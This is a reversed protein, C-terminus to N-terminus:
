LSINFLKYLLLQLSIGGAAKLIITIKYYFMHSTVMFLQIKIYQIFKKCMKVKFYKQM